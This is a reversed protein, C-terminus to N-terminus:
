GSLLPSQRAGNVAHTVWVPYLSYCVTGFSSASPHAGEPGRWRHPGSAARGGSGFLLPLQLHCKSTLLTFLPASLTSLWPQLTARAELSWLCSCHRPTRLLELPCITLVSAEQVDTWRCGRQAPLCLVCCSFRPSTFLLSSLISRQEQVSRSYTLRVGGCVCARSFYTVTLSM